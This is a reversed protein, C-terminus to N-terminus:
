EKEVAEILWVEDLAADDLSDVVGAVLGTWLLTGAGGM